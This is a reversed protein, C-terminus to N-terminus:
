RTRKRVMFVMVLMAALLAACAALAGPGSLIGTSANPAAPDPTDPGAPTVPAEPLRQEGAQPITEVATSRFLMESQTSPSSGLVYFQGNYATGTLELIM